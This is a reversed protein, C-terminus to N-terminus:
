AIIFLNGVGTLMEEVERRLIKRRPGIVILYFERFTDDNDTTRHDDNSLDNRVATREIKPARGNRSERVIVNPTNHPRDIELRKKEEREAKSTHCRGLRVRMPFLDPLQREIILAIGRETDIAVKPVWRM